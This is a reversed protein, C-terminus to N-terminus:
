KKLNDIVMEFHKRMAQSARAPNVSCIAEAIERHQKQLSLRKDPESFLKRSDTIFTKMLESIAGYFSIILYNGTCEIIKYHFEADLKTCLKEGTAANLKESIEKLESRQTESMRGAALGAAEIELMKRTELIDLYGGNRLKFSISLPEFFSKGFDKRIFNGGGQRCEILGLIDLARVAERISTRSVRFMEAMEREAPLRDGSKLSGNLIMKQIQDAVQQYVKKNKVPKFVKGAGNRENLISPCEPKALGSLIIDPFEIRFLSRTFDIGIPM